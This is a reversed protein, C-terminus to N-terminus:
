RGPYGIEEMDESLEELTLEQNLQQVLKESLPKHTYLHRVPTLPVSREYYDEAWVQYSEPKGDLLSLLSMSGDPDTGAPFIIVGRQWSDDTFRRWICFTTDDVTFAQEQLCSAFEVPISDLVGPWVKRPHVAYPSMPTEHSFGKLLCGGANFLAFFGDGCGDRMSGMQEGKAWHSNFSYYRHQWEPSLIADLMALSQLLFRLGETDPLQEM